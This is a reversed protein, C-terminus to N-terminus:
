RICEINRAQRWHLLTKLSFKNSFLDLVMDSSSTAAICKVSSGTEPAEAQKQLYKKKQIWFKALPFKIPFVHPKHPPFEVKLLLPEKEILLGIYDM